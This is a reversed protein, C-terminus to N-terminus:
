EFNSLTAGGITNGVAEDYIAIGRRKFARESMVWATWRHSQSPTYICM